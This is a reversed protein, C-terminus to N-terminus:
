LWEAMHLTPAPLTGPWPPPGGPAPPTSITHGRAHMETCLEVCCPSVVAYCTSAPCCVVLSKRRSLRVATMHKTHMSSKGALTGGAEQDRWHLEYGVQICSMGLMSHVGVASWPARRLPAARSPPSTGSRWPHAALLLHQATNRSTSSTQFFECVPRELRALCLLAASM